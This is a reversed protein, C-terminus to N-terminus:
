PWHNETAVGLEAKDTQSFVGESKRSTLELSTDGGEKASRQDDKYLSALQTERVQKRAKKRVKRTLVANEGNDILALPKSHSGGTGDEGELVLTKEIQGGTLKLSADGKRESLELKMTLLVNEEVDIIGPSCKTHGRGLALPKTGKAARLPKSGEFTM